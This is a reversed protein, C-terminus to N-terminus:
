FIHFGLILIQKETLHNCVKGIIGIPEKIYKGPFMGFNDTTHDSARSATGSQTM